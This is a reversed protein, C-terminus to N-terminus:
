TTDNSFLDVFPEEDTLYTCLEEMEEPTASGVAHGYSERPFLKAWTGLSSAWRPVRQFIRMEEQYLSAACSIDNLKIHDAIKRRREESERQAKRKLKGRMKNSARRLQAWHTNPLNLSELSVGHVREFITVKRLSYRNRKIESLVLRYEMLLSLEQLEKSTAPRVVQAYSKRDFVRDWLTHRPAWAPTEQSIRLEEQYIRASNLLDGNNLFRLMEDGRDRSQQQSCQEIHHIRQYYERGGTIHDLFTQKFMVSWLLWIEEATISSSTKETTSSNNIIQDWLENDSPAWDPEARMVHLEERYVNRAESVENRGLCAIIRGRREQSQRYLEEECTCYGLTRSVQQNCHWCFSYGCLCMMENCGGDKQIPAGCGGCTRTNESMWFETLEDMTQSTVEELGVAPVYPRGLISETEELSVAIRCEPCTPVSRGSIECCTFWQELCPKCTSNRSCCSLTPFNNAAPDNEDNLCVPCPM